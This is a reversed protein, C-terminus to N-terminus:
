KEGYPATGSIFRYYIIFPDFGCCGGRSCMESDIKEGIKGTKGVAINPSLMGATIYNTYIHTFM